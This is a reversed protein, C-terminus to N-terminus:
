VNEQKIDWPSLQFFHNPSTIYMIIVSPGFVIYNKQVKPWESM